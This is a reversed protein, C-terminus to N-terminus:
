NNEYKLLVINRTYIFIGMSHAFLLVPDKRFIAYIIILLAGANSLLWFGLPLVSEKHIESILWQYVFRLSFILQSIIGLVLIEPPILENSFLDNKIGENYFLIQALLVIPLLIVLYRLVKNGKDWVGQIQLNRIYIYYTLCQGLMISFDDRLYGYVFLFNSALLSMIWFMAPSLVKKNRESLSWQIILRSSFLIQAIFGVSYILLSEKM